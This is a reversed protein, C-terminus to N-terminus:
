MISFTATRHLGCTFQCLIRPIRRSEISGSPSKSTREWLLNPKFKVFDILWIGHPNTADFEGIRIGFHHPAFVPILFLSKKQRNKLPEPFQTLRSGAESEV